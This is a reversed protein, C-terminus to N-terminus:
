IFMKKSQKAFFRNLPEFQDVRFLYYFYDGEIVSIGEYNLLIGLNIETEIDLEEEAVLLIFPKREKTIEFYDGRDSKHYLNDCLGTFEKNQEIYDVCANSSITSFLFSAILIFIFNSM